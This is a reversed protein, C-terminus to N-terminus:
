LRQVVRRWSRKDVPRLLLGSIVLFGVAVILVAPAVYDVVWVPSFFALPGIALVALPVGTATMRFPRWLLLPAVVLLSFGAGL